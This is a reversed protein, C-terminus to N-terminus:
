IQAIDALLDADNEASSNQETLPMVHAVIDKISGLHHRMLKIAQEEDRAKLAQYIEMHESLVEEFFGIQPFAMRRARDLQGTAAHITKWLNPFGAIMCIMRHFESDSRFGLETDRHEMAHKQKLLTFEIDKDFEPLYHRAAIRVTQLEISARVLHGELVKRVDIKSVFTGGSPVIQILGEQALRLVAERMPTRSIGLEQCTDKENLIAGPPLRMSIIADRITDYAWLAKPQAHSM